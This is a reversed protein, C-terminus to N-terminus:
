LHSENNMVIKELRAWGEGMIRHYTICELISEPSKKHKSPPEPHFLNPFNVMELGMTEAVWGLKNDAQAHIPYEKHAKWDGPFVSPHSLWEMWNEKKIKNSIQKAVRMPMLTGAGGSLFKLQRHGFPYNGTMDRGYLKDESIDLQNCFSILNLYNVFTDDDCIFLWKCGLDDNAIKEMGRFLKPPCSHWDNLDTAIFHKIDPGLDGDSSVLYNEFHSLWTNLCGQLRNNKFKASGQILIYIDENM